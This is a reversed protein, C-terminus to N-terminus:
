DEDEEEEDEWDEDDEDDDDDDEDDDDETDEDQYADESEIKFLWSDYPDDQILTPDEVVISNIEVITGSVPAYLDIPGEDTELAGCVVGAEVTEGTPPLDLTSIEEFTDIADENLGVTYINDEKQFWFSGMFNRYQEAM